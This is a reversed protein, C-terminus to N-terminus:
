ATHRSRHIMISKQKLKNKVCGSGRPSILAAKYDSAGIIQVRHNGYDAVATQHRSLICIDLPLNLQGSDSGRTGYSSIYDGTAPDLIQVNTMFCDAAHLIDASDFDISQLRVFKGHWNDSYAPVAEGFGTLYTGTLNFIEIRSDGQDAVYIVAENPSVQPQNYSIAAAVPFQFQGPNEGQEGISRVLQTGAFVFVKCALSDVVYLYGDHDICLDNPMQVYGTGIVRLLTGDVDYLEINDRGDNGVYVRGASDAAIGLPRSLNSIEGIITLSHNLIFVAGATSDTVYILDQPGASIRIPHTVNDRAPLSNSIKKALDVKEVKAKKAGFASNTLVLSGCLLIAFVSQFSRKLFEKYSPFKM